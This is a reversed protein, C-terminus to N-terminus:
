EGPHKRQCAVALSLAVKSSERGCWKPERHIKTGKKKEGGKRKKNNNYTHIRRMYETTYLEPLVKLRREQASDRERHTHTDRTAKREDRM